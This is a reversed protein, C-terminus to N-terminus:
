KKAAKAKGTSAKVPKKETSTPEEVKDILPCGQKNGDGSLEAIRKASVKLGERPFTDGADYHHCEDQLDDFRRIVKYM